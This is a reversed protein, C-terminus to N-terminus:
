RPKCKFIFHLQSKLRLLLCTSRAKDFCLGNPIFNFRKCWAFRGSFKSLSVTFSRGEGSRASKDM